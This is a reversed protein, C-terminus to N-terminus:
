KLSNRVSALSSPSFPATFGCGGRTCILMGAFNSLVTHHVPCYPDPAYGGARDRKWLVGRQEVFESPMRQALEARLQAVESRLRDNEEKLAQAIDRALELRQKVVDAVPFEALAKVLQDGLSM